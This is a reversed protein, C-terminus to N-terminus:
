TVDRVDFQWRVMMKKTTMCINLTTMVIHVFIASLVAIFVCYFEDEIFSCGCSHLSDLPISKKRRFEEM